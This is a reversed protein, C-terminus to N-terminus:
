QYQNFDELNSSIKNFTVFTKDFIINPKKKWVYGGGTEYLHYPIDIWYIGDTLKVVVLVHVESDLSHTLSEYGMKDLFMVIQDAILHCIGGHGVAEDYGTEDQSWQDYEKQGIQSIQHFLATLDEINKM